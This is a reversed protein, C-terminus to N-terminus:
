RRLEKQMLLSGGRHLLRPSPALEAIGVEVFGLRKYLRVAAVNDAWVHLSLRSLGAELSRSEACDILQTGIGKGRCSDAVAIANLFMSGRDQLQLIPRIHDFRDSVLPLFGDDAMSDAPFLNVAGVIRDSADAAVFCNQHSLPSGSASVGAALIDIAGMFPILDDFLFEYLGGGAECILAAIARSDEPAAPRCTVQADNRAQERSIQDM